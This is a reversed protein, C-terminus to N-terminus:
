HDVNSLVEEITTLAEGVKNWGYNRLTTMGAAM